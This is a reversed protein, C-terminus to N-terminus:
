PGSLAEALALRLIEDEFMSRHEFPTFQVGAIARRLELGRRALEPTSQPLALGLGSRRTVVGDGEAFMADAMPDYRGWPVRPRFYLQWEEGERVLGVRALTPRGVGLLVQM